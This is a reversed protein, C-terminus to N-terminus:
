RVGATRTAAAPLRATVCTGAGPTGAVELRGGLEEARERMSALGVGGDRPSPTGTGDDTVELVLEGGEARIRVCARRAGAHRVVNTLAEQAIRYVSVSVTKPLQVPPGIQHFGVSLGEGNVDAILAPLRDAGAQPQKVAPAELDLDPDAARLMGLLQRMENVASRSSNEIVSLASKAADPDTDM